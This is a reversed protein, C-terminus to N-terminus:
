ISCRAQSVAAEASYLQTGGTTAQQRLETLLTTREIAVAAHNALTALLDMDSITFDIGDPVNIAALTGLITGQSQIPVSLAHKFVIASGYRHGTRGRAAINHKSVQRRRGV